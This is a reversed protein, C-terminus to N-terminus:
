VSPQEAHGLQALVMELTAKTRKLMTRYDQQDTHSIEMRLNALRHELIEQLILADDRNLEIRTM